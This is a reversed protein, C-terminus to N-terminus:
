RVGGGRMRRRRRVLFACRLGVKRRHNRVATNSHNPNLPVLVDGERRFGIDELLHADLRHMARVSAKRRRAAISMMVKQYIYFTITNILRVIFM